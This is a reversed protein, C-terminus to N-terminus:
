QRLAEDYVTVVPERDASGMLHEVVSAVLEKDTERVAARQEVWVWGEPLARSRPRALPTSSDSMPRRCGTLSELQPFVSALAHTIPHSLTLNLHKLRPLCLNAFDYTGSHMTFSLSELNAFTVPPCKPVEEDDGNDSDCDSARSGNPCASLYAQNWKCTDVVTLHTLQPVRRALPPWFTRPNFEQVKLHLRTLNPVHRMWRTDVHSSGSSLTASELAPVKVLSTFPGAFQSHLDIHTLHTATVRTLKPQPPDDHVDDGHDADSYDSLQGFTILLPAVFSELRTHSVLAHLHQPVMAQAYPFGRHGAPCQFHMLRPMHYYPTWPIFGLPHHNRAYSFIDLLTLHTLNPFITPASSDFQSPVFLLKALEFNITLEMLAPMNTWLLAPHSPQPQAKLTYDLVLRTITSSTFLGATLDFHGEGCLEFSRLCPLRSLRSCMASEFDKYTSQGCNYIRVSQASPGFTPSDSITGALFYDHNVAGTFHHGVTEFLPCSKYASSAYFHYDRIQSPDMVFLFPLANDLEVLGRCKIRGDDHLSLADITLEDVLHLPYPVLVLGGVVRVDTPSASDDDWLSM